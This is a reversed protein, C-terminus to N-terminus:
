FLLLIDFVIVAYCIDTPHKSHFYIRVQEFRVCTNQTHINKNHKM